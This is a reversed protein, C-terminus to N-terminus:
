YAFAIDINFELASALLTKCVYYLPSKLNM